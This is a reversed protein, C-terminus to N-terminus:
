DILSKDGLLSLHTVIRKNSIPQLSKLRFSKGLTVRDTASGPVSGPHRPMELGEAILHRQMILLM